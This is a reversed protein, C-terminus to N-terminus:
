RTLRLWALLAAVLAALLILAPAVRTRVPPPGYMPAPGSDYIPAPPPGYMPAPPRDRVSDKPEVEARPMRDPFRKKDEDM